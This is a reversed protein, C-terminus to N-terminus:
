SAKWFMVQYLEPQRKNQKEMRNTSGSYDSFNLGIGHSRIGPEKLRWRILLWPMSQSSSVKIKTSSKRYRRNTIDYTNTLLDEPGDKIDMSIIPTPKKAHTLLVVLCHYVSASGYQRRICVYRRWLTILQFNMLPIFGKVSLTLRWPSKGKTTLPFM